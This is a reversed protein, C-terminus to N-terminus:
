KTKGIRLNENYCEQFEPVYNPNIVIFTRGKYESMFSFPEVVKLELTVKGSAGPFPLDFVLLALTSVGNRGGRGRRSLASTVGEALVQGDSMFKYALRGSGEGHSNSFEWGPVAIALKYCTKYKYNIPISISTDIDFVDFPAEVINKYFRDTMFMAQFWVTNYFYISGLLVLILVSLTVIKKVIDGRVPRADQVSM